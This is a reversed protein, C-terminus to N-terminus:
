HPKTKSRIQQIPVSAQVAWGGSGGEESTGPVCGPPWGQAPLSAAGACGHVPLRCSCRLCGAAASGAIVGRLRYIATSLHASGHPIFLSSDPLGQGSQISSKDSTCKFLYLLLRTTCM